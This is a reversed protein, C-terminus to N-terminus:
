KKLQKVKEPSGALTLAYNYAANENAYTDDLLKVDEIEKLLCTGDSLKIQIKDDEEYDRWTTIDTLIVTGDTLIIAKNFTYQLDIITKNFNDGYQIETSYYNIEDDEDKLANTYNDLSQQSPVNLVGLDQTGSLVVLGDKTKFQIQSGTYDAYGYIPVVSISDGNSEVAVNFSKNFDFIQKNGCGTLSLASTVGLTCLALSAKNIKLNQIKM